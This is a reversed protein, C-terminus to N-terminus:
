VKNEEPKKKLEEEKKKLAMMTAQADEVKPTKALKSFLGRMLSMSVMSVGMSTASKTINKLGEYEQGYAQQASELEKQAANARADTIPYNSSSPQTSHQDVIDGSRGIIETQKTLESSTPGDVLGKLEGKGAVDKIKAFSGTPDSGFFIAIAGIFLAAASGIGIVILAKSVESKKMLKLINTCETETAKYMTIAKKKDAGTSKAVVEEMAKMKQSTELIKTYLEQIAKEDIQKGKRVAVETKKKLALAFKLLRKSNRFFMKSGIFVTEGLYESENLIGSSLMIDNKLSM